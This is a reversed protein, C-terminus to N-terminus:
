FTYSVGVLPVIDTRLGGDNLKILMNGTVLLKRVPSFKVGLSASSLNVSQKVFAIEPVAKGNADTFTAKVVSPSDFVEQGVIDFVATLRKLIGYDVGFSYLFSNPMKAKTGATPDGALVSDGNWQYGLNVHPSVRARYSAAVFPKVGVAGTGLFNNADGSPARVDLGVAVGAREGKWATAKVRFVVDGIGTASSSDVFTKDVSTNPNALDFFHFQGTVPDAGAGTLNPAALRNIHAASTVKMDANVLPIAVSVDVRNGLGYTVFWTYQNIHLDINNTTTIYDNLFPFQAVTGFQVHNFVAPFNHIDLGDVSDFAFHQYTFGVFVKNRGITESRETLVPGFSENSQTVVGLTKDFSYVFGSAPSAIPLLSLQTGISTNVPTFNTGAAADFHAAHFPNALTLGNPGYLGPVLSVLNGGRSVQLSPTNTQISGATVARPRVCMSGGCGCGIPCHQCLCQITQTLAPAILIIACVILHLRRDKLLLM